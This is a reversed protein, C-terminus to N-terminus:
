YHPPREDPDIPPDAESAGRLRGRLQDVERKLRRIEEGLGVMVKDQDAVHRELWAFRAELEISRQPDPSTTSM